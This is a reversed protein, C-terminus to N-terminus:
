FLTNATSDKVSAPVAMTVIHMAVKCGSNRDQMRLLPVELYGGFPLGLLGLEESGYGVSDFCVSGMLESKIDVSFEVRPRIPM